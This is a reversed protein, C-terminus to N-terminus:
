AGGLHVSLTKASFGSRSVGPHPRGQVPCHGLEDANRHNASMEVMAQGVDERGADDVPLVM